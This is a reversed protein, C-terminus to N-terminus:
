PARPTPISMSGRRISSDLAVRAAPTSCRTSNRTSSTSVDSTEGAVTTVSYRRADAVRLQTRHQGPLQLWAGSDHRVGEAHTGVQGASLISRNTVACPSSTVSTGTSPPHSLELGYSCLGYRRAGPRRDGRHAAHLEPRVQAGGDRVGGEVALWPNPNAEIVAVRGDPRLRMDIRAYDRLELAQFVAVATQQLLTSTEEPLDEAVASKTDRYARTGKGWKM